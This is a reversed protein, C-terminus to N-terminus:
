FASIKYLHALLDDKEARRYDSKPMYNDFLSDIVQKSYDKAYVFEGLICFMTKNPNEKLLQELSKSTKVM